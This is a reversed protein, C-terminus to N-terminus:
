RNVLRPTYAGVVDALYSSSVRASCQEYLIMTFGGDCVLNVSTYACSNAERYSHCIKVEWDLELLRRINKVLTWGIPSGGKAFSITNVVVQSDVHLEVRFFGYFLALKFGEFVGWFEVHV